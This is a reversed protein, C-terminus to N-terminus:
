AADNVAGQLPPPVYARADGACLFFGLALALLLCWRNKRTVGDTDM